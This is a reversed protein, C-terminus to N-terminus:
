EEIWLDLLKLFAKARQAATANTIYPLDYSSGHLDENIVVSFLQYEFYEKDVESLTSWAKHMANLDNLYDPTWAEELGSIKDCNWAVPPIGLVDKLGDIYRCNYWGCAEAIAIRQEEPKM